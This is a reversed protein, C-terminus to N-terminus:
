AECVDGDYMDFYTDGVYYGISRPNGKHLLFAIQLPLIVPVILKMAELPAAKVFQTGIFSKKYDWFFRRFGSM